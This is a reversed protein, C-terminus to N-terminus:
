TRSMMIEAALGRNEEEFDDLEYDSLETGDAYEIRTIYSDAYDPYGGAGYVEASRLDVPLDHQYGRPKFWVTNKVNDPIRLTDAYVQNLIPIRARRADSRRKKRDMAGLDEEEDDDPLQSEMLRILGRMGEVADDM